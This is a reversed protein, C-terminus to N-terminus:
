VGSKEVVEQLYGNLVEPEWWADGSHMSLVQQHGLGQTWIGKDNSSKSGDGGKWHCM